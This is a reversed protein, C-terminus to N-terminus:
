KWPLKINSLLFPETRVVGPAAVTVVLILDAPVPKAFRYCRFNTGAWTATPQLKEGAATKFALGILLKKPDEVRLAVSCRPPNTPSGYIGSFCRQEIEVESPDVYQKPHAREYDIYSELTHFTLQIGHKRIDADSLASGPNAMFNTVELLGGNERTPFALDMEGSIQQITRAPESPGRLALTALWGPQLHGQADLDNFPCVNFRPDFPLPRKLEKGEDDVARQVRIDTIAAAKTGTIAIQVTCDPDRMNGVRIIARPTVTFQNTQALAVTSAAALTLTAVLAVRRWRTAARGPHRAKTPAAEMLRMGRHNM